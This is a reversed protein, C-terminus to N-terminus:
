NTWVLPVIIQIVSVYVFIINIHVNSIVCFWALLVKLTLITTNLAVQLLIETINHCDTENISSVLTCWLFGGVKCAVINWYYQPLWNWQHLFSSYVLSFWRGAALWQFVKDHLTTDLVGWWSQFKVWLKLPSLCQNCLYNYIWSAYSWSWSLGVLLLIYLM